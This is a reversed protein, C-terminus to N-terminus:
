CARSSVTVADFARFAEAHGCAFREKGKFPKGFYDILIKEFTQPLWGDPYRVLRAMQWNIQDAKKNEAFRSKPVNTIGVKIVEGHTPTEGILLYLYATKDPDFGSKACSPCGKGKLHNSPSIAFEGHINCTVVVKDECNKGYITKAYSYKGAHARSAREIFVAACRNRENLRSRHM